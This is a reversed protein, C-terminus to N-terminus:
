LAGEPSTQDTRGQPGVTEGVWSDNTQERRVCRWEKGAQGHGTTSEEGQWEKLGRRLCAIRRFKSTEMM